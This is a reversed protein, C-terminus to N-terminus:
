RSRFANLKDALGFLAAAARAKEAADTAAKGRVLWRRAEVNIAGIAAATTGTVAGDDALRGIGDAATIYALEAVGFAREGTLIVTDARAIVAPAPQTIPTPASGPSQVVPAACATLAVAFSMLLLRM